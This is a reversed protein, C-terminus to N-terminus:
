LGKLADHISGIYVMCAHNVLGVCAHVLEGFVLLLSVVALVRLIDAILAYRAIEKTYFM